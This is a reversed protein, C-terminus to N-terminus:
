YYYKIFVKGQGNNAKQFIECMDDCIHCLMLSTSKKNENEHLIGRLDILQKLSLEIEDVEWPEDDSVEWPTDVQYHFALAVYMGENNLPILNMISDFDGTWMTIIDSYEEEGDFQFMIDIFAEYSIGKRSYDKHNMVDGEIRNYYTGM